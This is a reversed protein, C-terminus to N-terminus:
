FIQLLLNLLFKGAGGAMAPVVGEWLQETATSERMQPSGVEEATAGRRVWGVGEDWGAGHVGTTV